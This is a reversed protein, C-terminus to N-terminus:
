SKSEAVVRGGGQRKAEYMLADAREFADDCGAETTRAVGVSTTLWAVTGGVPYGLRTVAALDDALSGEADIPRVVVFEDGGYRAATDAPGCVDRLAEAIRRLADDGVAHGGSDNIAKFRDVDIVAVEHGPVEPLSRFVRLLHERNWLGTLLDRRTRDRLRERDRTLEEMQMQMESAAVRAAEAAEEARRTRMWVELARVAMRGEDAHYRALLDARQKAADLAGALDGLQERLEVLTTLPDLAFRPGLASAAAELRDCALDPRDDLRDLEALAQTVLVANTVDRMTAPDPLLAGLARAGDVDGEEALGILRQARMAAGLEPWASEALREGAALTPLDDPRYEEPLGHLNLIALAAIARCDIGVPGGDDLHPLTMQLAEAFQAAAKEPDTFEYIVGLDHVISAVISPDGSARAHRLAELLAELSARGLGLEGLVASQTGFARAGWRHTLTRTETVRELTTLADDLRQERWAVFAEVVDRQPGAPCRALLAASRNPESYRCTWAAEVIDPLSRRGEQEDDADGSGRSLVRPQPHM